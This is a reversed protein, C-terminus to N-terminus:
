VSSHVLVLNCYRKFSFEELTQLNSVDLIEKLFDSPYAIWSPYCTPIILCSLYPFSNQILILPFVSQLIGGGNWFENKIILIKLNKMQKFATGDWKVEVDDNKEKESPDESGIDKYFWLRSRKGPM